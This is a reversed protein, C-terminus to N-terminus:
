GAAEMMRLSVTRNAAAAVAADHTVVVAGMAQSRVQSFMLDLVEDRTRVDLSGTPEDALLLSPSTILARALALRQGEGGSIMATEASTRIGLDVILREADRRAEDAPAGALLAPLTVNQVLTLEPLLDAHQFVFGMTTLRFRARAAARMATLERGLVTISGTTPKRLGGLCALLTTKGSGSPGLVAVVEGPGVELDVGALIDRRGIRVGVSSATLLAGGHESSVLFDGM